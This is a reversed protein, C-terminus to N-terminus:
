QASESYDRHHSWENIAAISQERRSLDEFKEKSVRENNYFWDTKTMGDYYAISPGHRVNGKWSTEEAIRNGDIFHRELGDRRGNRYSLELYKVGNQYYSATGDLEGDIFQEESLPEGTEAYVKKTGHLRGDSFSAIVHPTGNPHYGERRICEGGEFVEKTVVHNGDRVARIGSGGTIHYETENRANFYEAETLTGDIFEEVSLPSGSPYWKTVKTHSPSLYLQEAVPTGRVSYTVQKVLTGKEFVQLMQVTESYPYTHTMPGHLLGNEYSSTITVGNRMTTIVKGPYHSSEWEAKSVDYGYKHIYREAVVHATQKDSRNNHCGAAVLALLTPLLLLRGNM